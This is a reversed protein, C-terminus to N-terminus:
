SPISRSKLVAAAERGLCIVLAAAGATHALAAAMPWGLVVNSLGTGWQVMLIALIWGARRRAQPGRRSLRVVLWAFALTLALAFLRHM